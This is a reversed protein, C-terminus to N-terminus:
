HDVVRYLHWRDPVGKLEHEGADEFVLGSGATLDKVTSSSFIESPGAMAGIRSGIVVAIGAAKGDVTRVEGTHLGCRIRLGLPAIAQVIQQACRVARAPGDFTAFFGDGSNDMETGRYRALLGRVTSHHRLVLEGWAEDGMEAAKDTSDVIDTFLVTALVRDLEAEDSRTEEVFERLARVAEQTGGTWPPFDGPPLEIAKAGPMREVLDEYQASSPNGPFQRYIAVAPVHVTPLVARFDIENWMNDFAVVDGPAGMRRCVKAAWRVANPDGAISPIGAERMIEATRDEDGWGTEVLANFADLEDQPAGFPYDAASASKAVANWFALARVREPYTAAYMACLGGGDPGAGWLVSRESGVADLVARVDDMRTELDPFGRSRDSLGIGRQDLTILRAFSAMERYFRAVPPYEWMVELESFWPSIWLLDLEGGGGGLVQYAIFTGDASRAYRTKPIEM